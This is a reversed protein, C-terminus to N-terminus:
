RLHELIRVFNNAGLVIHYLKLVLVLITAILNCAAYYVLIWSVDWLPILKLNLYGSHWLFNVLKSATPSVQRLLGAEPKGSQHRTYAGKLCGLSLRLPASSRLKM